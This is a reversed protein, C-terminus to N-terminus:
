SGLNLSLLLTTIFVYRIDLPTFLLETKDEESVLKNPQIDTNLFIWVEHIILEMHSKKKVAQREIESYEELFSM